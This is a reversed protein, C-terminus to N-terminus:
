LVVHSMRRLGVEGGPRAVSLTFANPGERVPVPIRFLGEGDVEVSAGEVRVRAGREVVGSLEWTLGEDSWGIAPPEAIRALPVAQVSVSEGLPFDVLVLGAMPVEFTVAERAPLLGAPLSRTDVRLRHRGRLWRGGRDLSPIRSELAPVAYRGDADTRVEQGSALVLRVGGVGPEDAGCAGDGDVERCVRGAVLGELGSRDVPAVQAFAAPSALLTLSTLLVRLRM